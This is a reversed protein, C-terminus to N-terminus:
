ANQENIAVTSNNMVVNVIVDGKVTENDILMKAIQSVQKKYYELSSYAERYAEQVLTLSESDMKEKTKESYKDGMGLSRGLFPNRGSETNENYFVQLEEGMGYNGIMSQALQNATKLDQVAGLSVFDDGYFVSEAAKGGMAVVLRKKLCEKTYLGSESIEPKENFLTYGGAGNYTAQITVKKLEFYEPYLLSLLAHGAEHIAVRTRTTESRNDVRKAIGVVIKELSSELDMQEIIIRGERAASIAAENILNKIQAGSFGASLEALFDYEIAPNLQKNKSHVQFIKKRSEKDPLPVNIIRDFRGPRLLASDLVDKRNTAAIILVGENNNFGDMEALLQNLTQEREDNGMNIGTGRQKGISDIEDIFVICPTNQRAESFLSRVKQAGLGVFLEVFESSAVSIFNADCESAIAKAILTKGTGPPGELLIGKPVQAGAMEYQTSNRLYSVVEECEEFIEPSGAWDQLTVNAKQMNEKDKKVDFTNRNNLFSAGGAGGGFPGGGGMPMNNNNRIIASVVSYLLAAYFLTSIIGSFASGLQSATNAFTVPEPLVYTKVQHTRSSDLVPQALTPNTTVVSIDKFTLDGLDNKHVGYIKKLDQTFFLEQLSSRDIDDLLESISERSLSSDMNQLDRIFNSNLNLPFHRFKSPIFVSFRYSQVSRNSFFCAIASTLIITSIM